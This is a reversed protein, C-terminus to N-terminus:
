FSFARYLHNFPPTSSTSEIGLLGLPFIRLRIKLSLSFSFLRFLTAVFSYIKLILQFQIVPKPSHQHM